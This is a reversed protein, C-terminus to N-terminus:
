LVPPGRIDLDSFEPRSNAVVPEEQLLEIAAFTPAAHNSSPAPTASHAVICISCPASEITAHNHASEAAAMWVMLSLCLWATWKM